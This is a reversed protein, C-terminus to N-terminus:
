WDDSREGGGAATESQRDRRKKEQLARVDAALRTLEERMRATENSIREQEISQGLLPATQAATAGRWDHQLVRMAALLARDVGLQQVWYIRICRLILRRFPTILRQMRSPLDARPSALLSEVILVETEFAADPSQTSAPLTRQPASADREQDLLRRLLRGRAPPGHLAEIDARARAGVAAAGPRDTFVRVMQEAAAAVDPEAWRAHPPYPAADAGVEVIRAPVPFSNSENAFELTASYATSIVPKGLAM